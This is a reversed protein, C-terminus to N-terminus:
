IDSCKCTTEMMKNVRAGSSLLRSLRLFIGINTRMKFWCIMIESHKKFARLHRLKTAPAPLIQTLSPLLCQDKYGNRPYVELKSKTLNKFKLWNSFLCTAALPLLQPFCTSAPSLFLSETILHGLNTPRVHVMTVVPSIELSFLIWM